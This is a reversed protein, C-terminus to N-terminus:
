DRRPAATHGRIAKLIRDSIRPAIGNLGLARIIPPTYVARRNAEVAALITTAVDDPDLAGADDRWDPMRDREHAHLETDVEGPFATTLEVGTGSLEHRLAEALARGAAKTGGYTAAWPFARLAAASSVVVVHGSARDLMPEIGAKLTYITGLVNVRVMEDALEVDVDAFPGYHAVGANAVLLDLGGSEEVFAEVAAEIEGRDGVDAPLVIHEGPLEEAVAHLGAEGRAVLGM